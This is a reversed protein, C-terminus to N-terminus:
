FVFGLVWVAPAARRKFSRSRLRCRIAGSSLESSRRKFEGSWKRYRSGCASLKSSRRKFGGSWNIVELASGAAPDGPRFSSVEVKLNELGSGAGAAGPRFSAACLDHACNIVDYLLNMPIKWPPQDSLQYCLKELNGGDICLRRFTQM